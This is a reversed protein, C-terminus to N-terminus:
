RSGGTARAAELEAKASLSLEEMRRAEARLVEEGLPTLQFYRRRQDDLEPDPRNASEEILGQSAITRITRYLNGPEIKLRGDTQAAVAKVISYGHREGGVLVLLIHFVLPKLPLHQRTEQGTGTGM